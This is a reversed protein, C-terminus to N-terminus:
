AKQQEVEVRLARAVAVMNALNEKTEKWGRTKLGCDPCVWIQEAPVVGTIKRLRDKMEDVSAVRPSHIDFLGPALDKLYASSGASFVRLLKLDSKSNEITLVDVDLNDLAGFIDNFDSYCLHSQIQTEDRVVATSIRFSDVAWTLYADWEARRLPLGERIAPEDVQICAIGAKELDAVEDRIALALQLCTDRRPQDNRVFSWQLITVPGTLMGKMIKNTLSQAYQTVEVTMPNPRHVDGFIIPPKVCRSGYSQVWGNATFTFGALYKGFFEVMDEREAEGHVLVDLGLEEQIDVCMKIEKKIFADYEQKSIKGAKFATRTSRVEKTQPFSGITTTAFYKPLRDAFRARQITRRKEFDSARNRLKTGEPTGAVTTALRAQVEPNHIRPSTRRSEQARQNAEYETRLADDSITIAGTSSDLIAVTAARALFSIESLKEEAFSLWALIEAHVLGVEYEKALSFPSHLLSSSPGVFVRSTGLAAIAKAILTLSQKYDNKWINRGDVVGLSLIIPARLTSIIENFEATNNGRVLDIHLADIPLDKVIASYNSGLHGFYNTLQLKLNPVASRITQYAHAYAKAVVTPDQDLSLMPEDFQIWQAGATELAKLLAVYVPLLANLHVLADSQAGYPQLPNASKSLLLFTVPGIIVPRTEIGVAKAELFERVPKPNESLKFTQQAGLEPVLYHYNTDFYKKMELSGIDFGNAQHGRSMAFYTTLASGTQQLLSQYREPIVGFLQAHDLVQDFFSFDNSPIFGQNIGKSAQLKWHNERLQRATALLDAESTKGAWYSEVVKKLERNPGMRPFGLNTAEVAVAVM